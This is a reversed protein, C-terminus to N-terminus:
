TSDDNLTNIFVVLNLIRTIKNKKHTIFSIIIFFFSKFKAQKIINNYSTLQSYLAKLYKKKYYRIINYNSLPIAVHVGGKAVHVSEKVVHVGEGKALYIYVLLILIGKLVLEIQCIQECILSKVRLRMSVKLTEIFERGECPTAILRLKKINFKDFVFYRDITIFRQLYTSKVSLILM